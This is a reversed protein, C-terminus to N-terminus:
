SGYQIQVATGNSGAGGAVGDSASGAGSSKTGAAGGAGGTLVFSGSWGTKNYYGFLAMGGCGGGGGGGGGGEQAAGGNGGAGGVGGISEFTFAGTVLYAFVGLNGGGGGSGGGSGGATSNSGGGGGSASGSGGKLNTVVGGTISAWFFADRTVITVGYATSTGASAGAGGSQGLGSSGGAGGTGGVASVVSNTESTGAVGAGGAGTNGGAGGAKGALSAPVSVGAAAAGAAGGAGGTGGAGGAGGAAAKIKGSTGTLLGRVFVRYGATNLTFTVLDLNLYNMDKTITINGTLTLSGDSGDGFFDIGESSPLFGAALKGTSDLVPLKNEDGAGSSTKVVLSTPVVVPAGSTGEATSAAMDAAVALEGTGAATSTMATNSTANTTVWAGATYITRGVGTVHAEDGEVPATFVVDRAAANAYPVQRSGAGFSQKATFTNTTNTFVSSQNYSASDLVIISAGKAWIKGTGGTFNPTINTTPLGRTCTTLTTIKTTADVSSGEFSIREDFGGHSILCEGSTSDFGQKVKVGNVTKSIPSVTITTATASIGAALRGKDFAAVNKSPATLTM